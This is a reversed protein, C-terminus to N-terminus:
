KGVLFRSASAAVVVLKGATFYLTIRTFLLSLGLDVPFSSGLLYLAVQNGNMSLASSAAPVLGLSSTLVSFLGTFLGVWVIIFAVSVLAAVPLGFVLNGGFGGAEVSLDPIGGTEAKAYTQTLEFLMKGAWLAFGTVLLFTWIAKIMGLVGPIRADPDLNLTYGCFAFSLGSSSGSGGMSSLTPASGVASVASDFGSQAAASASNGATTADTANTSVSGVGSSSPLNTSARNTMATLLNTVATLLNTTGTAKADLSSLSNTATSGQAVLSNADTEITSLHGNATDLRSEIGANDTGHANIASTLDTDVKSLGQGLRTANQNANNIINSGLASIAGITAASSSGGTYSAPPNTYSPSNDSPNYTEPATSPTGSSAASSPYSLTHPSGDADTWTAAYFASFPSSSTIAPPCWHDGPAVSHPGGLTAGGSANLISVNVTYDSNNTFCDGSGGGWTYTVVPGNCGNVSTSHTGSGTSTYFVFVNGSNCGSPCAHYLLAYGSPLTWTNNGGAGIGVGAGCNVGTFDGTSSSYVTVSGSGTNNVTVTDDGFCIVRAALLGIILLRLKM